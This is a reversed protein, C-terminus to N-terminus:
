RRDLLGRLLVRQHRTFVYARDAEAHMALHQRLARVATDSLYIVRDKRGKGPM